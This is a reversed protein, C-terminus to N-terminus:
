FSLVAANGPPPSLATPAQRQALGDGLPSPTRTWSGASWGLV